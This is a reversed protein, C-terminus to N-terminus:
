CPNHDDFKSLLALLIILFDPNSSPIMLTLDYLKLLPHLESETHTTTLTNSPHFQHTVGILSLIDHLISIM